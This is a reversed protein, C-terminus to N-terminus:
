RREWPLAKQPNERPAGGHPNNQPNKERWRPLHADRTIPRGAAPNNQLNKGRWWPLTTKCIKRRASAQGGLTTKRIKEARLRRQRSRDLGNLVCANKM